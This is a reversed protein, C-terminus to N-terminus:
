EKPWFTLYITEGSDIRVEAQYYGGGCIDYYASDPLIHIADFFDEYRDKPVDFTDDTTSHGGNYYYTIGTVPSTDIDADFVLGKEELFALTKKYERFVYLYANTTNDENVIQLEALVTAKRYDSLTMANSDVQLCSKLTEMEDTTLRLAQDSTKTLAYPYASLYIDTSKDMSIRNALYASKRYDEDETMASLAAIYSEAPVSYQRRVKRGSKLQWTISVSVRYGDDANVQPFFFEGGEEAKTKAEEYAEDFSSDYDTVSVSVSKDAAERAMEGALRIAETNSSFYKCDTNRQVSDLNGQLSNDIADSESIGVAAVESDKPLFGDLHFPDAMFCVSIIVVVPLCILDLPLGKKVGRWDMYFILDLIIPLLLVSIVLFFLFWGHSITDSSVLVLSGALLALALSGPVTVAVKVAPYLFRFAFASGASEAPRKQAALFFLILGGTLYLLLKVVRGPTPAALAFAVPSVQIAMSATIGPDPIHPFFAASLGECIALVVPAIVGFFAGMCVGIFTRGSILQGLSAFTYAVLFLLMDYLGRVLISGFTGADVTGLGTAIAAGTVYTILFPMLVLVAGACWSILAMTKRKVAAANWFDVAETRHLYHFEAAAAAFAAIVIIVLLFIRNGQRNCLFIEAIDPVLGFSGGTARSRLMHQYTMVVNVPYIFFGAILIMLFLWFRSTCNKRFLKKVSIPKM